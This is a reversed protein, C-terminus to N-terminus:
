RPTMAVLPASAGSTASIGGVTVSQYGEMTVQVTYNVPPTGTVVAFVFRGDAGTAMEHGNSLRVRAGALPRGSVSSTVTGTIGGSKMTLNAFTEQGPYVMVEMTGGVPALVGELIYKGPELSAALFSGDSLSTVVRGGTQVLVGGVPAGTLDHTVGRISGLVSGITLDLPNVNDVQCGQFAISAAVLIMIVLSVTLTAKGSGSCASCFLARCNTLGTATERIANKENMNFSRPLNM